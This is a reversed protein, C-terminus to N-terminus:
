IRRQRKAANREHQEEGRRRADRSAEFKEAKEQPSLDYERREPQPSHAVRKRKGLVIRFSPLNTGVGDVLLIRLNKETPKKHCPFRVPKEGRLHLVVDLGLAAAFDLITEKTYPEKLDVPKPSCAAVPGM